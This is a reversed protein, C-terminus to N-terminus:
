SLSFANGWNVSKIVNEDLVGLSIGYLLAIYMYIVEGGTDPIMRDIYGQFSQGIM